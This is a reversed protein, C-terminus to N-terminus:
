VNLYMSAEAAISSSCPKTQGCNLDGGRRIYTDGVGHVWLADSRRPAPSRTAPTKMRFSRNGTSFAVSSSSSIMVGALLRFPTVAHDM